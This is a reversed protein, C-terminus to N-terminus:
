VRDAMVVRDHRELIHPYRRGVQDAGLAVPHRERVLPEPELPQHDRRAAQAGRVPQGLLHGRERLLPLGAAPRDDLVAQHGAHERVAQGFQEGGARHEVLGGAADVRLRVHLHAV